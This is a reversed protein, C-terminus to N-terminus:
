FGRRQSRQFAAMKEELGYHKQYNEMLRGLRWAPMKLGFIFERDEGTVCYRLFDLPSDIDMVDQWDMTEPDIMTISRGGVQAVFPPIEDRTEADLDFVVGASPLSTVNDTM